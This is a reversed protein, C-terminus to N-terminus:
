QEKTEFRYERKLWWKYKSFYESSLYLVRKGTWAEVEDCHDQWKEYCWQRFPKM